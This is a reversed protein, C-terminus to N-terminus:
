CFEGSSEQPLEKSTGGCKILEFVPEVGSRAGNGNVHVKSSGNRISARRRVSYGNRPQSGGFGSVKNASPLSADGLVATPAQPVPGPSAISVTSLKSLYGAMLDLKAHVANAPSASLGSLHGAILDLKEHLSMLEAGALGVARDGIFFEACDRFLDEAKQQLLHGDVSLPFVQPFEMLLKPLGSFMVYKAFDHAAQVERGEKVRKSYLDLRNM